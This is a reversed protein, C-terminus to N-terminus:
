HKLLVFQRFSMLSSENSIRYQTYVVLSSEIISWHKNYVNLEINWREKTGNFTLTRKRADRKSDFHRPLNDLASTIVSNLVPNSLLLVLCGRSIIAYTVFELSFM